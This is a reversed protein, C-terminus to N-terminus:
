SIKVNITSNKKMPIFIKLIGDKCEATTKKTDLSDSLTLKASKTWEETKCTINMSKVTTDIETNEKNMGPQRITIDVGEKKHNIDCYLRDRAASEEMVGNMAEEFEKMWEVFDKM